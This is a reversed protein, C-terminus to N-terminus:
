EKKMVLFEVLKIILYATTAFILMWIISNPIAFCLLILIVSVTDPKEYKDTSLAILTIIIIFFAVLWTTNFAHFFGTFEFSDLGNLQMLELKVLSETRASTLIAFSNIAPVMAIFLALISVILKKTSKETNYRKAFILNFLLANIIFVGLCVLLFYVMFGILINSVWLQLQIIPRLIYKCYVSNTSLKPMELKTSLWYKNESLLHYREYINNKRSHTGWYEPITKIAHEIMALTSKDINGKRAINQIAMYDAGATVGKKNAGSRVDYEIRLQVLSPNKSVFVYVRRNYIGFGDPKMEKDKRYQKDAIAAVRAVEVTDVVRVIYLFGPPYNYNEIARVTSDNLIKHDDLVIPKYTKDKSEDYKNTCSALLIVSIIFIVIRM